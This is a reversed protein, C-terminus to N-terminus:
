RVVAARKLVQTACRISGGQGNHTGFYVPHVKIGRKTLESRIFDNKVHDNYSMVYNNEDVPLGNVALRSADALSVKILDWGHICSPIGEVFAEECIIALGHRPISLVCDLHLIQEVLPVREVKYERGLIQRLWEYGAKNSGVAQNLTNGVLITKGIIVLDGGELAPDDPSTVALPAAHPMAFWRMNGQKFRSSLIEKFGSIDARRLMTRLNFEIAQNGIVIMNDRPFDQSYGNALIERGYNQVIFDETLQKPRFVRVGLSTLVKILAINEEELLETESKHKVPHIMKTWSLGATARTYDAEDQPLIKLTEQLWPSNLEPSKGYPLGVIVEQLSGYESDVYVPADSGPKTQCGALALGGALLLLLIINKLM